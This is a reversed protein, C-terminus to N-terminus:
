DMLSALGKREQLSTLLLPEERKLLSTLLSKIREKKLPSKSFIKKTYIERLGEKIFLSLYLFFDKKFDGEIGRSSLPLNLTSIRM